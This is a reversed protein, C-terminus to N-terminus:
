LNQKKHILRLSIVSSSFLGVVVGFLTAIDQFSESTEVIHYLEGDSKIYMDITLPSITIPPNEAVLGVFARQGDHSLETFQTISDDSVTSPEDVEVAEVSDINVNARHGSIGGIATATLIFIVGVIKLTDLSVSTAIWEEVTPISLYIKRLTALSLFSGTIAAISFSVTLVAYLLLGVGTTEEIVELEYYSGDLQIYSYEEYLEVNESLSIQDAYGYQYITSQGSRFSRQEEEPLTEYSIVSADSPVSDVKEGTLVVSQETESVDSSIYQGGLFLGGFLLFLGILVLWETTNSTSDVSM